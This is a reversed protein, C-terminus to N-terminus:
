KKKPANPPPVDKIDRLIQIEDPTLNPNKQADQWKALLLTLLLVFAALGLVVAIALWMGRHRVRGSATRDETM